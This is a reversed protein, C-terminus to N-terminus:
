RDGQGPEPLSRVRRSLMKETKKAAVYLVEYSAVIGGPCKYHRDYYSVLRELEGRNLQKSGSAFHGGTVGQEHLSKLLNAASKFTARYTKRSQFCVDLGADKLNNLVDSVRPLQKTPKKAPAIRRRSEHLEALTGKAMMSFVLLGDKKLLRSAKRFTRDLPTIWHLSSSSTILDFGPKLRLERFDRAIWKITRSGVLRKKAELIMERSIDAAHIGASPFRKALKATLIGTGCGIELISRVAHRRPLLKMLNSAASSQAIAHRNYTGAAASFRGAVTQQDGKDTPMIIGGCCSRLSGPFM